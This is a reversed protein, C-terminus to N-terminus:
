ERRPGPRRRRRREKFLLRIPVELGFTERLRNEVFRRYSDPISDAHSCQIAFTPPAYAVQAVYYMKVRSGRAIPAPQEDQM